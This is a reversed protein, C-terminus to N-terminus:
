RLEALLPALEEVSAIVHDAHLSLQSAPYPAREWLAPTVLALTHVSVDPRRFSNLVLALAEPVAAGSVAIVAYPTDVLGMADVLGSVLTCCACGGPLRVTGHPLRLAQEANDILTVPANEAIADLLASVVQRKADYEMGTVAILQM